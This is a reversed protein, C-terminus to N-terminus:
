EKKAGKRKFLKDRNNAIINRMKELIIDRAETTKSTPSTMDELLHVYENLERMKGIFEKDSLGNFDEPVKAVKGEVEKLDKLTIREEEAKGVFKEYVADFIGEELKRNLVCFVYRM